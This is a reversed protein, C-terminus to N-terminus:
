LKAVNIRKLRAFCTVAAHAQPHIDIQHVRWANADIWSSARCSGDDDIRELLMSDISLPTSIPPLPLTLEVSCMGAALGVGLAKLLSEKAVWALKVQMEREAASLHEISTLERKSLVQSALDLFKTRATPIEIDVGVPTSRSVAFLAWDNSHSVNFQLQSRHSAALMPKGMANYAFRIDSADMGLLKGLVHRLRARCVGFRRRIEPLLFRAQRTREDASLCSFLEDLQEEPALLETAIIEITDVAPINLANFRAIETGSTM